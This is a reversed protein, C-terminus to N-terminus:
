RLNCRRLAQAHASEVGARQAYALVFVQTQERPRAASLAEEHAQPHLTLSRRAQTTCRAHSPGRRCDAAAFAVTIVARSVRPRHDQAPTWKTSTRGEPCM